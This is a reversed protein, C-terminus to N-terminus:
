GHKADGVWARARAAVALAAPEIAQAVQESLGEGFEDVKTVEIAFALMRDTAASQMRAAALMAALSRMHASPPKRATVDRPSLEFLTGPRRGTRAADILVVHDHEAFLDVLDFDVATLESCPCGLLAAVRRALVLGAGDDCRIPNGIGVVVPGAARGGGITESSLGM